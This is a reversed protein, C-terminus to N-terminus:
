LFASLRRLSFALKYYVDKESSVFYYCIVNDTKSDMMVLIGFYRGLFSTDMIINLYRNEPLKLLTKPAKDIYRQITRM